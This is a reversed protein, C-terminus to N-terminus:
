KKTRAPSTVVMQLNMYYEQLHLSMRPHKIRLHFIVKEHITSERMFHVKFKIVTTEFYNEDEEKSFTVKLSMETEKAM